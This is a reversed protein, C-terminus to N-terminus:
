VKTRVPSIYANALLGNGSFFHNQRYEHAVEQFMEPSYGMTEFLKLDIVPVLTNNTYYYYYTIM